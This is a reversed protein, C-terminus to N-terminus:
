AGPETAALKWNPDRANVQRTFTWVDDTAVIQEANGDVVAGDATRTATIQQSTFRIAVRMTRSALSAAVIKPEAVSVFTISLIEGRKERDTVAAAFGDFVEKTLLSALLKRDSSAFANLVAEYATKAGRMFPRPAFAKDADSMGDLAAVVAADGNEVFPVWDRPEPPPEAPAPKAAGPLRLLGKKAPPALEAPAQNWANQVPKTAQTSKSAQGTKSAQVGADSGARGGKGFGRRGAEKDRRFGNNQGLVSYLKWLAIVAVLAFAITLPDLPM